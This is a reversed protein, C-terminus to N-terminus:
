RRESYVQRWHEAATLAGSDTLYLFTLVGATMRSLGSRTLLAVFRDELARTLAPDRGHPDAAVRRLRSAIQTYTLGEALGAAITRRDEQTLRGGPM